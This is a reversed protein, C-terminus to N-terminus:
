VTSSALTTPPTFNGTALAQGKIIRVASIYGTTYRDSNWGTGTTIGGIMLPQSTNNVFASTSPTGQSVGNLYLQTNTSTRVLAIHNWQNATLTAGTITSGGGFFANLQGALTWIAFGSVGISTCGLIAQDGSITTQYVWFEITYDVGNLSGFATNNAVQLFDSGDFYGAGTTFDTSVFPSNDTIRPSGNVTITFGSGSNATSNDIFRNSQCTLLSTNTINQLPQTPPTFNSTYVATGKVLRLNSIYGTFIFGDWTRGIYGTSNTLNNSSTTAGDQLGNIYLKTQNTGTGERVVCVHTWTNLAISATSTASNTGDSYFLKQTTTILLRYATTPASGFATTFVECFNTGTLYVWAELTFNGTGVAFAANSPTNLYQGSTGDFYVSYNGGFYPSFPRPGVDGNPTVLFNNTSADANYALPLTMAQPGTTNPVNGQLLLTTYNFYPDRQFPWLNNRQYVMQDKLSWVGSASSQTPTVNPLKIINGPFRSM